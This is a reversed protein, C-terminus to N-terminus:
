FRGLFVQRLVCRIVILGPLTLGFQAVETPWPPRPPRDPVMRGVRSHYWLASNCTADQSKSAHMGETSQGEITPVALRQLCTVFHTPVRHSRPCMWVLNLLRLLHSV